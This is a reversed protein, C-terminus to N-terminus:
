TVEPTHKESFEIKFFTVYDNNKKFLFGALSLSEKIDILKNILDYNMSSQYQDDQYVRKRSSRRPVTVPSIIHSSSSCKSIQISPNFITPVPKLTKILRYRKGNKDKSSYKEEFNKTCIFSSPAPEWDKRNVFKIWIKRLSEEKPLTFVTTPEEGVYNSRCGVVCWKYVM